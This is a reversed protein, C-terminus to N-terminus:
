CNSDLEKKKLERKKLNYAAQYAVLKEKNKMYYEDNRVKTKDKNNANYKSQYEKIKELNNKRYEKHVNLIHEINNSYYRNDLRWQVGNASIKERNELNNKRYEKHVNLIHEINNSYYNAVKDRNDLRWQVGNASIKERNDFSYEKDTRTPLSKNICDNNEIYYRERKHLEMKNDSPFNEVLVIDYNNSELVQHSSCLKKEYKSRHGALRRALTPECTSGYYTLGTTNCVIKYIKGLQYNTM